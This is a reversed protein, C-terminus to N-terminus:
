QTPDKSQFVKQIGRMNGKLWCFTFCKKSPSRCCGLNTTSQIPIVLTNSDAELLGKPNNQGWALIPQPRRKTEWALGLFSIKLCLGSEFPKSFPCVKVHNPLQGRKGRGEGHKLGQGNKESALHADGCLRAQGVGEAVGQLVHRGQHRVDVKGELLGFSQIPHSFWKQHQTHTNQENRKKLTGSVVSSDFSLQLARQLADLAM